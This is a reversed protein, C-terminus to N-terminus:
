DSIFLFFTEKSLRQSASHAHLTDSANMFFLKEKVFADYVITHIPKASAESGQFLIRAKCIGNQWKM